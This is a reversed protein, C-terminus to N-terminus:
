CQQFLQHCINRFEELLFSSAELVFRRILTAFASHFDSASWIPSFEFVLGAVNDRRIFGLHWRFHVTLSRIILHLTKANMIDIQRHPIHGVPYNLILLIRAIHILLM